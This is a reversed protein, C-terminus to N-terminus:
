PFHSEGYTSMDQDDILVKSGKQKHDWPSCFQKDPKYSQLCPGDQAKIYWYCKTDCLHVDRDYRYILYNGSGASSQFDCQFKTTGWINPQFNWEYFENFQLTHNGLDDESSWCHIGLPIGEGLSNIIRVLTKLPIAECCM